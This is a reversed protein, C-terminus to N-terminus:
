PVSTLLLNSAVRILAFRCSESSHGAAPAIAVPLEGLCGVCALWEPAHQEVDM